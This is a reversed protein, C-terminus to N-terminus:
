QLVFKPIWTVWTMLSAISLEFFCNDYQNQAKSRGAELIFQRNNSDHLISLLKIDDKGNELQNEYDKTCSSLLDILNFKEKKLSLSDSEIKTVDLLDETLQQLRKMESLLM